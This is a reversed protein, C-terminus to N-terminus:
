LWDKRTPQRRRRSIYATGLLTLLCAARPEPVAVTALGTDSVIALDLPSIDYRSGRHYVVGNMLDPILESGPRPAANGLHTSNGFTLPVNGGYLNTAEAGTFFFDNGDFEKLEDFTSKFDGPFSGDFHNQWGNFAIAHGFEHMLVSLADTRDDPVTASRSYPDPDFWLENQLYATGIGFVADPNAGNPDIGTRIETAVGQEFINFGNRNELFSATESRGNATAIGSDFFIDVDITTSGAFHRGWTEGAARTHSIIQSHYSSYTGSPDDINVNVTFDGRATASITALFLTSVVAVSANKRHPQRL